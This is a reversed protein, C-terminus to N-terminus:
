TFHEFVIYKYSQLRQPIYIWFYFDVARSELLISILMATEIYSYEIEEDPFIGFYVKFQLGILSNEKILM